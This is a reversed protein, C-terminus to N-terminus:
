DLVAQPVGLQRCVKAPGPYVVLQNEVICATLTIPVSYEGAMNARAGDQAAIGMRWAKACAEIAQLRSQQGTDANVASTIGHREWVDRDTTVSVSCYASNPDDPRSAAVWAAATGGVVVLGVTAAAAVALPRRNRSATTRTEAILMARIQAQREQGLRPEEPRNITM